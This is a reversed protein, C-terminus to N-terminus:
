YSEDGDDEQEQREESAKIFEDFSMDPRNEADLFRYELVEDGTDKDTSVCFRYHMMDGTKHNYGTVITGDEIREGDMNPVPLFSGDVPGGFCEATETEVKKFGFANDSNVFEHFVNTNDDEEDEFQTSM